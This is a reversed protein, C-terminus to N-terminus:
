LETYIYKKNFIYKVSRASIDLDLIKMLILNILIQNAEASRIGTIRILQSKTIDGNENIEKLLTKVVDNFKIKVGSLGKKQRKWVEILTKPAIINEDHVRVYAKFVGDHDPALHPLSDSKPVIIELIQKGNVVHHIYSFSVPPKCHILAATEIMYYEEESSVGAISGNDRVGILLSGGDTNAFSALSRAIKKTDSVSHKFDLMQGEGQQIRDFIKKNDNTTM